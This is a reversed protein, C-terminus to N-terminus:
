LYPHRRGCHAARSADPGAHRAIGPASDFKGRWTASRGALDGIEGASQVPLNTDYNGEALHQAARTIRGLPRTLLTAPILALAAAGICMLLSLWWIWRTARSIDHAIEELSTGVILYLTEGEADAATRDMGVRFPVVHAAFTECDVPGEWGAVGKYGAAKEHEGIIRRAEKVTEIQPTALAIERSHPRQRNFRFHPDKGALADSEANLANRQEDGRFPYDEGYAKRYFEFRLDPGLVGTTQSEGYTQEASTGAM